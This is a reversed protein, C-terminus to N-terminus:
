RNSRNCVLVIDLDGATGGSQSPRVWLPNQLVQIVDSNATVSIATETTDTLTKWVANAPDTGAIPDHSGQFVTTAGGHTQGTSVGIQISKDPYNAVMVPAGVDDGDLGAWTYTVIDQIPESRTAARTEVTM